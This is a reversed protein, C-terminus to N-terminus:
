WFRYGGRLGLGISLQPGSYTEASYEDHTDHDLGGSSGLLTQLTLGVLAGGFDVEVGTESLAFGNVGKADKRSPGASPEWSMSDIAIGGGLTQVFRVREGTTMLRAGLAIRFSSLTYGLPYTVGQEQKAPFSPRGEGGVGVRAYEFGLEAGAIPAFRYGVRAGASFGFGAGSFDSPPLPAVVNISALAYVGRAPAPALSAMREAVAIPVLRLKMAATDGSALAITQAAPTYGELRAELRHSGPALPITRQSIGKPQDEGDIRLTAGSPVLIVQVFGIQARLEAISAEASKRDAESMTAGHDRLARELAAIAQPYRFLARDCLAISTLAAAKPQAAYAAQFEARAAEYSEDELLKAGSAMRRAHEAGDARAISTYSAFSLTLALAVLTDALPRPM